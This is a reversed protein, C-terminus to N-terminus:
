EEVIVIDVPDEGAERGSITVGGVKSGVPPPVTGSAGGVDTEGDKPASPCGSGEPAADARKPGRVLARLEEIGPRANGVRKAWGALMIPMFFICLLFAYLMTFSTIFGFHQTLPMPSFLLVAFGLVTTLMSILLATGTSRIAHMIAADVDMHDREEFFRQIIHVSYDIGLGISLATVSVTMVNLSIDPMGGWYAAHVKETLAMTGVIWIATLAVPVTALLGVIVSRYIVMIILACLFTSILTSQIQSAQLAEITKITSIVYGAKTVKPRPEPLAAHEMDDDLDNFVTRAKDTESGAYVFMRFVADDFTWVGSENRGHLVTRANWKYTDNEILYEFFAQVDSDTCEQMPEADMDFHYEEALGDEHQLAIRMYNLISYSRNIPFEGWENSSAPIRVLLEDRRDPDDTTIEEELGHLALVMDVTALDDGEIFIYVRSQSAAAYSDAIDDYTEVVEWEGPLFDELKFDTRVQLAGWLSAATVLLVMAVVASRNKVAARGGRGMMEDLRETMGGTKEVAEAKRGGFEYRLAPQLTMTLVFAYLIGLGCIIGFDRVPQVSSPINSLFSCITTTATLFIAVGVHRVTTTMAESPNGCKRVEANYRALMHVSYDIGLGVILPIAAVHIATFVTGMAICTGITWIVTLSMSLMPRLVDGWSWFTLYLTAFIVLLIGVGLIYNSVQTLRDVEYGLIDAGTQRMEIHEFRLGGLVDERIEVATEKREEPDLTGNIQIVVLTSPMRWPQGEPEELERHLISDDLIMLDEPTLKRIAKRRDPHVDPGDAYAQLAGWVQVHHGYDRSTLYTLINDLFEYLRDDDLDYIDEPDGEERFADYYLEVFLAFSIYGEVRPRTGEMLGSAEIARSINLQERFAAPTVVNDGNRPVVHIFYSSPDNGFDDQLRDHAKTEENEPLFKNLDSEFRFGEQVIIGVMLATVLVEVVIISGAHREVFRALQLFAM